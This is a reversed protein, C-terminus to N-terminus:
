GRLKKYFTSRSVGLMAAARRKNGGSQELAKFMLERERDKVEERFGGAAAGARVASVRALEPPLSDFPLEEGEWQKLAAQELVNILERVNGPWDYAMFAQLAEASLREFATGFRENV